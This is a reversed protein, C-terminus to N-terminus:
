METLKGTPMNPLWDSNRAHILKRSVGATGPAAAAEAHRFFGSNCLGPLLTTQCLRLGGRNEFPRTGPVVFAGARGSHQTAPLPKIVAM